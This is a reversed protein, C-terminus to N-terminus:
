GFTFSYAEVGPDLFEISFTHDKVDGTQRVLQYLRQETVTGTGDATVDSGHAAGPAAGDISVRFRVPKGDKDPGLVLHLDRAHFRYVIGGSAAALTAHEEGVRWKGDLGWENLSLQTPAAYTHSRDEAEGGPSAFNEARSYGIYTEPSKMDSNDAAAEVGMVSTSTLGTPVSTANAHGAEALLQQIVKESEAYDGEGFHHYRIRGQADVFYHAPWYENNLSRWIAYNNDIAVPYDIGLDHTAKKVNDINREFAFEPAHVGIVVLGQDKYKEAWAKVYPLSRLCNICSYTWFDVLVVKGRLSQATLPPSNLWQVAGNLSPLQGEVPLPPANESVPQAARLMGGSSAAMMSGSTAVMANGTTVVDNGSSAAM